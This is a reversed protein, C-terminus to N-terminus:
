GGGAIVVIVTAISTLPKCVTIEKLITTMASSHFHFSYLGLVDYHLSPDEGWPVHKHFSAKSLGQM